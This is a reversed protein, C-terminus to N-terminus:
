NQENPRQTIGFSKRYEILLAESSACYFTNTIDKTLRFMFANIVDDHYSKYHRQFHNKDNNNVNTALSMIDLPSLRHCSNRLIVELLRIEPINTLLNITKMEEERFKNKESTEDNEQRTEQSSRSQIRRNDQRKLSSVLKKM